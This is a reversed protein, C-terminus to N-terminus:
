ALGSPDIERIDVVNIEVENPADPETVNIPKLVQVKTFRLEVKAQRAKRAATNESKTKRHRRENLRDLSLVETALAPM